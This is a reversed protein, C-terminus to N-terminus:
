PQDGKQAGDHSATFWMGAIVGSLRGPPESAAFAHCRALATCGDCIALAEAADRARDLTDADFLGARGRCAAEPMAPQDALVQELLAVPGAPRENRSPWRTAYREEPWSM